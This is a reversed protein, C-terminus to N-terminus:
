ANEKEPTLALPLHKRVLGSFMLTARAVARPQVALPVPASEVADDLQREALEKLRLDWNRNAEDSDSDVDAWLDEFFVADVDKDLRDVWPRTRNDRFDLKKAGGQLLACLAPRLVKRRADSAREIRQKALEGLADRSVPNLLTRKVKEPIRLVREHYGETKGQGRVLVQAVVIPEPGDDERTALALRHDGRFLLDSILNYSFGSGSVTLARTGAKDQGVPTWVDGTDGRNQSADLFAKDTPATRAELRGGPHVVLRMRRCVEIFFPDCSTLPRSEKGDWPLTWLLAHGGEARYGYSEDILDSRRELWVGVDRRFRDSWRLNPAAALAPRSAFGGNMRAIGYNGRGLFGEMTQLTVLMYIWHEPRPHRIQQQKVDYNKSTILVDMADPNFSGRGYRDLSGEPVPTQFFAPRELGEVTLCWADAGAEGALDLLADRWADPPRDLDADDTRHAVLAALQVLFAYWGHQQHVRLATFELDRGAGLDALVQPLTVYARRDHHRVGLVSDVLLSLRSENM